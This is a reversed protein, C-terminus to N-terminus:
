IKRERHWFSFLQSACRITVDLTFSGLPSVIAIWDHYIWITLLPTVPPPLLTGWHVRVNEVPFTKSVYQSPLTLSFPFHHLFSPFSHLSPPFNFISPPSTHFHASSRQGPIPQATICSYLSSLTIEDSIWKISIVNFLLTTKLNKKWSNTVAINDKLTVFHVGAIVCAHLLIWRM